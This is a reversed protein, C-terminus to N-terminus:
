GEASISKAQASLLVGEIPAFPFGSNTCMIKINNRGEVQDEAAVYTFRGDDGPELWEKKIKVPDGKKLM